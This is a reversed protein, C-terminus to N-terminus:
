YNKKPFKGLGSIDKTNALISTLDQMATEIMGPNRSAKAAIVQNWLRAIDISPATNQEKM